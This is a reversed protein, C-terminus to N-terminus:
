NRRAQERLLDDVDRRLEDQGLNGLENEKVVGGRFAFTTTPCVGVGYANILLGDVDVAIPFGWGRERALEAVEDREEGSVVGVFAVQPYRERVKEVV